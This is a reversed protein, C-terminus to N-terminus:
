DAHRCEHLRSGFLPPIALCAIHKGIPFIAVIVGIFAAELLVIGTAVRIMRGESLSGQYCCAVSHNSGVHQELGESKGSCLYLLLDQLHAM